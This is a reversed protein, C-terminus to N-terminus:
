RPMFVLGSGPTTQLIQVLRIVGGGRQDGLELDARLQDRDAPEREVDRRRLVLQADIPERIGLRQHQEDDLGRVQEGLTLMDLDRGVVELQPHDEV